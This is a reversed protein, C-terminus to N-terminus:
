LKFYQLVDDHPAHPPVQAGWQFSGDNTYCLKTPVKSTTSMGGQDNRWDQIVHIAHPIQSDAYAVGTFTTGFDLGVVITRAHSNQSSTM